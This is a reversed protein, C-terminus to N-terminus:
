GSLRGCAFLASYGRPGHICSQWVLKTAFRAKTCIGHTRRWLFFHHFLLISTLIGSSREEQLPHLCTRVQLPFLLFPSMGRTKNSTHSNALAIAERHPLLCPPLSSEQVMLHWPNAVADPQEELGLVILVENYLSHDLVGAIWRTHVRKLMSQRNGTARQIAVPNPPSPPPAPSSPSQTPQEEQDVPLLGLQEPTKELLECLRHHYELSLSRYGREWSRITQGEVGVKQALVQQTWGRERRAQRLLTNAGSPKSM